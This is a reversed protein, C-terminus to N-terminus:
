GMPPDQGPRLGEVFDAQGEPIGVIQACAVAHVAEGDIELVTGIRRLTHRQLAQPFEVTGEVLGGELQRPTGELDDVPVARVLVTAAAARSGVKVVTVTGALTGVAAQQRKRPQRRRHDGEDVPAVFEHQGAVAAERLTAVADDGAEDLRPFSELLGHGSLDPLLDTELDGVDGVM